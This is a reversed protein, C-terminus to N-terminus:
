GESGERVRSSAHSMVERPLFTGREVIGPRMSDTSTLGSRPRARLRPLEHRYSRFVRDLKQLKGGEFGVEFALLDVYLDRTVPLQDSCTKM